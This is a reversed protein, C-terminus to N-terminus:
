FSLAGCRVIGDRQWQAFSVAPISWLYAQCARQFDREDYLKEITSRTPYGNAFSHTFELEGIRTDVMEAGGAHSPTRTGGAWPSGACGSVGLCAIVAGAISRTRDTM